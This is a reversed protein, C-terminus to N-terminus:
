DIWELTNLRDQKCNYHPTQINNEYILTEPDKKNYTMEYYNLTSRFRSHFTYFEYVQEKIIM